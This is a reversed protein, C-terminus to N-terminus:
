PSLMKVRIPSPEVTGSEAYDRLSRADNRVTDLTVLPCAWSERRLSPRQPRQSGAETPVWCHVLELPTGALSSSETPGTGSPNVASKKPVVRSETKTLLLPLRVNASARLSKVGNSRAPVFRAIMVGKKASPSVLVPVVSCTPV